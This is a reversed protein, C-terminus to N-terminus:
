AEEKSKRAEGTKDKAITENFSQKEQGTAILCPEESPKISPAHAEPTNRHVESQAHEDKRISGDQTNDLTPNEGVDEGIVKRSRAFDQGQSNCEPNIAKLGGQNHTQANELIKKLEKIKNDIFTKDYYDLGVGNRLISLWDIFEQAMERTANADAEKIAEIEIQNVEKHTWLPNEGIECLRCPQELEKIRAENAPCTM